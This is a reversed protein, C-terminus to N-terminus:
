EFITQLVQKMAIENEVVALFHQTLKYIETDFKLTNIYERLIREQEYIDTINNLNLTKLINEATKYYQKDIRNLEYKINM